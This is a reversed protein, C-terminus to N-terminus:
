LSLLTNLINQAGNTFLPDLNFASEIAHTFWTEQDHIAPTTLAKLQSEFEEARALICSIKIARM